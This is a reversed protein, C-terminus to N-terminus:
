VFLMRDRHDKKKLNCTANNKKWNCLAWGSWYSAGSLSKMITARSKSLPKASPSPPLMSCSTARLLINVSIYWHMCTLFIINEVKYINKKLPLCIPKWRERRPYFALPVASNKQRALHDSLPMNEVHSAM